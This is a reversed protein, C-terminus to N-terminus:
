AATQRWTDLVAQVASSVQAQQGNDAWLHVDHESLTM